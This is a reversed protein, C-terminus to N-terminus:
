DPRLDDSPWDVMVRAGGGPADEITVRGGHARSLGGVIYMGLGSGGSEGTTWFKTFVRRRLEVPIGDGEDDVTIRVGPMSPLAELRVSVQGQGHRIANEVLNTVVQTFKDPDAFVEPLGEEVELSIGRATGAEISGVVRGVLVEASSERPYLQLRGTDIRAVDLLEAILRALRDADANVTELMLKRQDDSLKDWRNLLAQVFGKVGTLPSRLEHAVTAVLDSRERDMLARGRGSRLGVAIGVVPGLPDNRVLRATTLVEEGFANLWTQEPIGRVISISEFPRNVGLWTRGDQDLLRLVEDFPLGLAQESDVGLLAAGQANLITVVGDRTAGLIGDPYFDALSRLRSPTGDVRRSEGSM